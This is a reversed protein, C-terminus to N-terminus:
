SSSWDADGAEMAVTPSGSGTCKLYLGRGGIDVVDDAVAEPTSTAETASAPGTAADSGDGGGCGAAGARLTPAWGTPRDSLGPPPGRLVVELGRGTRHEADGPARM